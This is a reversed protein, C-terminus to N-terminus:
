FRGVKPNAWRDDLRVGNLRRVEGDPMKRTMDLFIMRSALFRRGDVIVVQYGMETATRIVPL